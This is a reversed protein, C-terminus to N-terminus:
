TQLLAELEEYDASIPEAHAPKALCEALAPPPEVVRRNAGEGSPALLEARPTLRSIGTRWGLASAFTRYGRGPM